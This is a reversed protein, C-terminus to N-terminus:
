LEQIAYKKQDEINTKPMPTNTIGYCRKIEQDLACKVPDAKRAKTKEIKLEAHAKM